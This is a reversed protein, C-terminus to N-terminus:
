RCERRLYEAEDATLPELSAKQLIDSCRGAIAPATRQAPRPPVAASDNRQAAERQPRAARASPTPASTAAAARERGGAAETNREEREVPTPPAAASENAPAPAETTRREDAGPGSLAAAAPEPIVVPATESARSTVAATPAAPEAGADAAASAPAAPRPASPADVRPQLAGVIAGAVLVAGLALAAITWRRGRPAAAEESRAVVQESSRVAGTARPALVQTPLEPALPPSLTSYGSTWGSDREPAVSEPPLGADLLARFARASQPRDASAGCARCRDSGPVARQLPRGGFGVFARAPRGDAARGVVDADPRHDRLLRGCALAYLDTWAGQTM